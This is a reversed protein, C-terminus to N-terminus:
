PSMEAGEPPALPPDSKPAAPRAIPKGEVLNRLLAFLLDARALIDPTPDAAWNSGLAGDNFVAGFGIAMVRGQGYGTRAAVPMGDVWVLPTGGWLRCAGSVAIGPWGDATGLKGARSAAHSVSLGFPWLLSNATSGSSDPSDIILLRGGAAVFEALRDRFADPVSRTPCIVVLVDSSFVELGQRRAPFYGLRPIWQELLGYGHGDKETFGGRSLPVKSVTRDIAVRVMPLNPEPPPMQLRSGLVLAASAATWGLLGAALVVLPFIRRAWALWLGGCLLALCLLATAGKAPWRMEAPDLVSRRNLWELMGLMLEAKGPEFASFNSFITSDTWALVRGRGQRAAWLQIFAGFRMDSRLEAEPFYNESRYLPPLSWLGTSRIVPTGWSTGPDISCSVAFTMPPVHAVVPHPVVPPAYRQEYTDEPEGIAFLLDKRFKFGFQRAIDNLYSTSKDFDTHDGILLLGGGRQVFRVVAEVEETAYRATPTKIVLVDCGRLRQADIAEAELLRSTAYFRSCYDYIAAYTYSSSEREEKGDATKRRLFTKSLTTTDYPFTTPEWSSHREVFTIRGEQRQGAPDWRVLFVLAAFGLVILGVAAPYRWRSGPGAPTSAEPLGASAADDSPVPVFLRALVAPVCLLGLDLWLSFFQDMLHLRASMEARVARHHWLAILLGARVPLWAAFIIALTRVSRLWPARREGAPFRSWAALGVLVIGGALFAFSPPDVPLDWTAGLRHVGRLTYVAITSGDVAADLGLLSAITGLLPPLPWPLDHSRATQWAHAEIALAQVLLVLGGAVAAQALRQPWRGAIPLVLLALGAAIALPAARHPWPLLWVAPLLMLLALGAERRRPLRLPLGALLLTGALVSAAWAPWGAPRYYHLGLLWSGALLALALWLRIM